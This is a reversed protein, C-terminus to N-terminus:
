EDDPEIEEILHAAKKDFAIKIAEYDDAPMPKVNKGRQQRLFTRLKAFHVAPIDSGDLNLEGAQKATFVIVPAIRVEEVTPANKRLYNAVAAVASEAERTPNGLGEQGFFRRLGVGKQRWKDGQV